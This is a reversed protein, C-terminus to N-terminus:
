LTERSVHIRIVYFHEMLEKPLSSLQTLVVLKFNHVKVFSFMKPSYEEGDTQKILSLYRYPFCFNCVTEQVM